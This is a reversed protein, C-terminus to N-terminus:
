EDNGGKLKYKQQLELMMQKYSKKDDDPKWARIGIVDMLKTKPPLGNLLAKFKLWHLKGHMEFLDIGYAQYFSSYILEGDEDYDMYIDNNGDIQPLPNGLIDYEINKDDSDIYKSLILEIANTKDNLNLENLEDDILLKLILNIKTYERLRTDNIAEIVILINNFSADVTYIKGNINVDDDLKHYIKM